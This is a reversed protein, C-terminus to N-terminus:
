TSQVCQAFCLAEFGVVLQYKLQQGIHNMLNRLETSVQHVGCGEESAPPVPPITAENRTQSVKCHIEVHHPGILHPGITPDSIGLEIKGCQM